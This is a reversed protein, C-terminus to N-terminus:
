SSNRVDFTLISPERIGRCIRSYFTQGDPRCNADLALPKSRDQKESLIKYDTPVADNAQGLVKNSCVRLEEVCQHLWLPRQPVIRRTCGEVPISETGSQMLVAAMFGFCYQLLSPKVLFAALNVEPQSPIKTMWSLRGNCPSM